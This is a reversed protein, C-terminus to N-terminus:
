GKSRSLFGRYNIQYTTDFEVKPVEPLTGFIPYSTTTIAPFRIPKSPIPRSYPSCLTRQSAIIHGPRSRPQGITVELFFYIVKLTNSLADLM